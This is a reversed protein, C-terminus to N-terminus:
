GNTRWCDGLQESVPTVNLVTLNLDINSLTRQINTALGSPKGSTRLLISNALHSRDWTGVHGEM